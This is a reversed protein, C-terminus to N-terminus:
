TDSNRQLIRPVEVWVHRRCRRQRVRRGGERGCGRWGRKGDHTVREVARPLQAGVATAADFKLTVIEDCIGGRGARSRAVPAATCRLRLSAFPTLIAAAAASPPPSSSEYASKLQLQQQLLQLPPSLLRAAALDPVRQQHHGQQREYQQVWDSEGCIRTSSAPRYTDNPLASCASGSYLHTM